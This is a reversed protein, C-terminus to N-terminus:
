SVSTSASSIVARTSLDVNQTAMNKILNVAKAAEINGCDQVHNHQIEKLIENNLSHIRGKCKMKKYQDCKWISKEENGFKEFTYMYDNYILKDKGKESKNFEMIIFYFFLLCVCYRVLM